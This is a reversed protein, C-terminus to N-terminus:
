ILFTEVPISIQINTCLLHLHKPISLPLPRAISLANSSSCKWFIDGLGHGTQECIQAIKASLISGIGATPAIGEMITYIYRWPIEISFSSENQESISKPFNNIELCCDVLLLQILFSWFNHIAM